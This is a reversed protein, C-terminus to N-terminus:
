ARTRKTNRDVRGGRVQQQGLGDGLIRKLLVEAPEDNADQPILEGRFAAALIAQELHRLHNAAKGQELAVQDIRAFGVSIRRLIEEMEDVPPLPIPLSRVAEGNIKPMNGATGTAKSRLYRRGSPSNIYRWAYQTLQHTPLRVRIMLDPYIYTHEPGDYIAATGVYEITNGRQLLLDNPRLWFKSDAPPTESIRKVAESDLRLYGSTTATLKLTAAGIADASSPPSWGNTPGEVILDGLTTNTWDALRMGKLLATLRWDATLEGSFAKELIAQKYHEILLPIRALEERATRTRTFLRDLKDVIRAQEASPPIRVVFAKLRDFDISDVTTGSKACASLIQKSKGRIQRALFTPNLGPRPSLAKLDQNVAVEDATVAVPLTHRLIGSRTVVLVSGKEILQTASGHLAAATIHDEASDIVERKMDKPSVWPIDGGEWYARVQKSPTGGGRWCGLEGLKAEAWGPPLETM